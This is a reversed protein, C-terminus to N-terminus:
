GFFRKRAWLLSFGASLLLPMYVAARKLEHVVIEKFTPTMELSRAMSEVAAVAPDLSTTSNISTRTTTNRHMNTAEQSQPPAEQIVLGLEQQRMRRMDTPMNAVCDM